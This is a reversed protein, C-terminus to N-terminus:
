KQLHLFTNNRKSFNIIELMTKVAAPLSLVTSATKDDLDSRPMGLRIFVINNNGRRGSRRRASMIFLARFLVVECITAGNHKRM